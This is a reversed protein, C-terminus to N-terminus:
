HAGSCGDSRSGAIEKVAANHEVTNKTRRTESVEGKQDNSSQRCCCDSQQEPAAAPANIKPSMKIKEM